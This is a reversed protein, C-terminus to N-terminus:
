RQNDAIPDRNRLKQVCEDGLLATRLLSDIMRGTHLDGAKRTELLEVLCLSFYLQDRIEKRLSMSWSYKSMFEEKFDQAFGPSLAEAIRELLSKHSTLFDIVMQRDGPEEVLAVDECWEDLMAFISILRLHINKLDSTYNM